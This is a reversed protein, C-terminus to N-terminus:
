KKEGAGQAPLPMAAILLLAVFSGFFAAFFAMVPKLGRKKAMDAAVLGFIANLAAVGLAPILLSAFFQTLEM